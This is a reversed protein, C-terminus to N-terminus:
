PQLLDSLDFFTELFKANFEDIAYDLEIVSEIIGSRKKRKLNAIKDLYKKPYNVVIEQISINVFRITIIYSVLDSM